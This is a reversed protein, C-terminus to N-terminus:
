MWVLNLECNAGLGKLRERAVEGVWVVGDGRWSQVTAAAGRIREQLSRYRKIREQQQSSASSPPASTTNSESASSSTDFADNESSVGGTPLSGGAYECAADLARLCEDYAGAVMLLLARTHALAELGRRARWAGSLVALDAGRQLLALAESRHGWATVDSTLRACAANSFIM